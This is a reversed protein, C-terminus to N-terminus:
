GSTLSQHRPGPMQVPPDHHSTSLYKFRTGPSYLFSINPCVAREKFTIAQLESYLGRFEKGNTCM